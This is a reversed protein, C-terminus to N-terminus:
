FHDYFDNTPSHQSTSPGSLPVTVRSIKSVNKQIFCEVTDTRRKFM